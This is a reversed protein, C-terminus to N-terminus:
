DGPDKGAATARRKAWEISEVHVGPRGEFNRKVLQADALANLSFALGHCDICVPRIMKENPRLIDNQNHSTAVKGRNEIKAMHCTACSVGSGIPSEGAMEAKWLLQHVSGFYARTHPDDHCGACAEVAAREIDVDHPQHCAGCDLSLHAAEARMPLRAETVTMLAPIPSDALWDPFAGALEARLGVTELRAAPDRPAAVLPHGRMGHRSLVFSKAEVEHCEVCGRNDPANIWHAEIEAREGSQAVAAAHCAACNVGAAAHGSGAWHDLVTADALAAAPAVAGESDLELEAAPAQARYRASLGHVPEPSLWAEDAHRVLFDEYLARNDHYNHCGSSACTDLSLEAHSPRATRVDQDGESHCAACFDAAVTVAGARTIEPLHEAHCVTCLRADLKEWYEAMRPSRFLKRPHSDGAAKLEAEHCDRCTQNLAKEAAESSAFLLDAHCTECSVELQHHADTTAGVLLASRDGGLFMWAAVIAVSALTGLVWLVWLVIARSM